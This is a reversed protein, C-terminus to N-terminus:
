FDSPVKEFELPSTKTGPPLKTQKWLLKGDPRIIAVFFRKDETKGELQDEDGVSWEFEYLPKEPNTLFYAGTGDKKIKLKPAPLGLRPTEKGSWTGIYPKRAADNAAPPAAAQQALAAGIHALVISAGVGSLLYRRLM